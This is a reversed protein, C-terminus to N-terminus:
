ECIRYFIVCLEYLMYLYLNSLFGLWMLKYLIVWDILLCGWHIDYKCYLKTLILVDMDWIGTSWIVLQIWSCMYSIVDQILLNLADIFLSYCWIACTILQVFLVFYILTHSSKLRKDCSLYVCEGWTFWLYCIGSVLWLEYVSTCLRRRRCSIFLYSIFCIYVLQRSM